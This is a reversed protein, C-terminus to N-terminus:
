HADLQPANAVAPAPRCFPVIIFALIFLWAMLRFVDNFSVALFGVRRHRRIFERGLAQAIRGSIM